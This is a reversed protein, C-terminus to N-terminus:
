MGGSRLRSLHYNVKCNQGCFYRTLKETDTHFDSQKADDAHLLKDCYACKVYGFLDGDPLLQM